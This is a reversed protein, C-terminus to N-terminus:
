YSRLKAPGGREKVNRTLVRDSTQFTTSKAKKDYQIKGSTVKKATTESALQYAESM